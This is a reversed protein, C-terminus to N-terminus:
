PRETQANGDSGLAHEECDREKTATRFGYEKSGGVVTTEAVLLPEPPLKAAAAVAQMEACLDQLGKWALQPDKGHSTLAARQIAGTATRYTCLAECRHETTAKSPAPASAASEQGGETVCSSLVLAATMAVTM